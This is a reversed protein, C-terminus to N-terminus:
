DSSDVERQRKCVKCEYLNLCNGINKVRVWEHIHDADDPRVYGYGGCQDCHARFHSYRHRNEPTDPRGHMSYANVRLNWGGHGRCQPCLITMGYKAADDM